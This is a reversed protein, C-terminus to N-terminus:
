DNGLAHGYDERYWKANEAIKSLTVLILNCM